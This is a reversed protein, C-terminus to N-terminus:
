LVLFVSIVNESFLVPRKKAPLFACHSSSLPLISSPSLVDHQARVLELSNSNAAVRIEVPIGQVYLYLQGVWM